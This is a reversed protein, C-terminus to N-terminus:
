IEMPFFFDKISNFPMYWEHKCFPCKCEMVLLDQKDNREIIAKVEIVEKKSIFNLSQVMQWKNANWVELQRIYLQSNDSVTSNKALNIMMLESHGDMLKYRFRKGTSISFEEHKGPNVVPYSKVQFKFGNGEPNKFDNDYQILDETFKLGKGEKCEDNRCDTTFRLTGGISHIRTKLLIHYKDKTKMDLVEAETLPRKGHLSETVIARIFNNYNKIREDENGKLDIKSLIEDDDANQERITYTDGSPVQFTISQGEFFAIQQEPKNM